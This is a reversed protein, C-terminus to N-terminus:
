ETDDEEEAKDFSMLVLGGAKVIRMLERIAREADKRIQHDM